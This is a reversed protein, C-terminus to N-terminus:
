IEGGKKFRIDDSSLSYTMNGKAAKIQNANFVLWAPTVNEKGDPLLDDPNNEYFMIGDFKKDNKIVNLWDPNSRLYRWLWLGGSQKSAIRLMPNDPMDYNYKLSLYTELEEYKVLDVGFLRLDMPNLVRLYCEYMNQGQAFWESYSKNEAFYAGPFLRFNWKSFEGKTTGHYVKLPEGEADVVKSGYFWDNFNGGSKEHPLVNAMQQTLGNLFFYINYYMQPYYNLITEIQNSLSTINDNATQILDQSTPLLEDRLSRFQNIEDMIKYLETGPQAKEELLVSKLLGGATKAKELMDPNEEYKARGVPGYLFAIFEKIKIYREEVTTM